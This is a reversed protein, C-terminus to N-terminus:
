YHGLDHRVHQLRYTTAYVHRITHTLLHRIQKGLSHFCQHGVHKRKHHRIHDGAHKVVELVANLACLERPLTHYSLSVSEPRIGTGGLHRTVIRGLSLSGYARVALAQMPSMTHVSCSFSSPTGGTPPVGELKEHETCVRFGM